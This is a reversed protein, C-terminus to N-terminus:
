NKVLSIGETIFISETCSIERGGFFILGNVNKPPNDLIFQMAEDSINFSGIIDTHSGGHREAISATIITKKIFQM